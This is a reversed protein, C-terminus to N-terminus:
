QRKFFIWVLLLQFLSIIAIVLFTEIQFSSLGRSRHVVKERERQTRAMLELSSQLKQLRECNIQM